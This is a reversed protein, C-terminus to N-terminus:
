GPDARPPPHTTSDPWLDFPNKLLLFIPALFISYGSHYSSYGDVVNGVLFAANILYGIEDQQYTPGRSKLNIIFYLIGVLVSILFKNNNLIKKVIQYRVM